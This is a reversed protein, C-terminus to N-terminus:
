YMPNSMPSHRKLFNSLISMKIVEKLLTMNWLRKLSLLRSWKRMKPNRDISDMTTLCDCYIRRKLWRVSMGSRGIIMLTTQRSWNVLWRTYMFLEHLCEMAKRSTTKVMIHDYWGVAWHSTHMTEVYKPAAKKLARLVAYYNSQELIDSDRHLGFPAFGWVKLDLEGSYMFNSPKTLMAEKFGEITEYKKTDEIM